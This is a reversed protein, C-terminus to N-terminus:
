GASYVYTISLGYVITQQKLMSLFLVCVLWSGGLVCARVYVRVCVRACNVVVFVVVIDCM